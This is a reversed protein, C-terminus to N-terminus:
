SSWGRIEWDVENGCMLRYGIPHYREAFKGNEPLSFIMVPSSLHHEVQHIPGDPQDRGTKELVTEPENHNVRAAM